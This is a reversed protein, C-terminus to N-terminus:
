PRKSKLKIHEAYPFTINHIRRVMEMEEQKPINDIGIMRVVGNM